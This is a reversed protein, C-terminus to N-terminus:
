SSRRNRRSLETMFGSAHMSLLLGAAIAGLLNNTAVDAILIGSWLGTMIRDYTGLRAFWRSIFNGGGEPAPEHEPKTRSPEFNLSGDPLHRGDLPNPVAEQSLMQPEARKTTRSDQDRCEPKSGEVM